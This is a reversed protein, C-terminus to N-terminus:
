FPRPVGRGGKKEMNDNQHVEACGGGGGFFDNDYDRSVWALPLYKTFGYEWFLANEIRESELALDDIFSSSSWSLGEVSLELLRTM